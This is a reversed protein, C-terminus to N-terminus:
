QHLASQGAADVQIQIFLYDESVIIICYLFDHRNARVSYFIIIFWHRDACAFLLLLLQIGLIYGHNAGAIILLTILHAAILAGCQSYCYKEVAILPRLINNHYFLFPM